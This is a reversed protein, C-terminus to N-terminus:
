FLDHLTVAGISQVQTETPVLNILINHGQLLNKDIGHCVIGGCMKVPGQLLAILQHRRTTNEM